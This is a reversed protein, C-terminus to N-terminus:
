FLATEDPADTAEAESRLWARLGATADSTEPRWILHYAYSTPVAPLPLRVLRGAALHEGILSARALAVGLGRAAAEITFDAQSFLQGPGLDLQPWGVRALWTAWDTGSGDHETPADRLIPMGVLDAPTRPPTYRALLEHACVPIVSDGMLRESMLGEHRGPGFRIALDIDARHLDVVEGQALLEVRVTPNSAVFRPLRPMVWCSAFSPLVSVRLPRSATADDFASQIHEIAERV